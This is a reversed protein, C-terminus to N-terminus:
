AFFRGLDIRSREIRTRDSLLLDKAGAGGTMM